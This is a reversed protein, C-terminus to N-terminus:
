SANVGQEKEYRCHKKGVEFCKDQRAWRVITIKVELQRALAKVESPTLSPNKYYRGGCKVCRRKTSWVPFVTDICYPWDRDLHKLIFQFLKVRGEDGKEVKVEVKVHMDDTM